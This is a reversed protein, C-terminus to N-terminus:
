LIGFCRVYWVRLYLNVTGYELMWVGGGWCRSAIGVAGGFKGHLRSGFKIDSKAVGILTGAASQHCARIDNCSM